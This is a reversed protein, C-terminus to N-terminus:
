KVWYVYIIFNEEKYYFGHNKCKETNKMKLNWMKCVSKIRILRTHALEWAQVLSKLWSDSFEIKVLKPWTKGKMPGINTSLLHLWLFMAKVSLVTLLNFPTRSSPSYQVPSVSDIWYLFIYLSLKHNKCWSNIPAM